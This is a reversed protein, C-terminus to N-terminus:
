PHRHEVWSTPAILCLIGAKQTVRTVEKIWKHPDQVHEICQGSIVIRYTNDEIPYEYLSTAVIDVNKGTQLDLGKYSWDPPLLNRYSGNIDVSGIDLITDTSKYNSYIYKEFFKKMENLSSQHM